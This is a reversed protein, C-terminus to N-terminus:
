GALTDIILTRTGSIDILLSPMTKVELKEIFGDYFKIFEEPMNEGNYIYNELEKELQEYEKRYEQMIKGAAIEGAREMSLKNNNNIISNTKDQWLTIIEQENNLFSNLLPYKEM